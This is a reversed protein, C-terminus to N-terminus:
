SHVASGATVGSWPDHRVAGAPIGGAVADAELLGRVWLMRDIMAHFPREIARQVEPGELVGFARAVAELTSLHRPDSETRLRYCSPAGPPFTVCPLERLGPVRQRVRGAQRWSGDPVILTLPLSSAAAVRELPQADRAPFLFAPQTEPPVDLPPNKLAPDGRLVIASNTLCEAALRGTNTPKFDEFRHMVLVLRTRTVLAPILECICLSRHM